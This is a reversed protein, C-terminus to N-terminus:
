TGASRSQALRVSQLVEQAGSQFKDAASKIAPQDQAEVAAPWGAAAASIQALGARYDTQADQLNAPWDLMEGEDAAAKLDRANGEMQARWSADDPKATKNITM